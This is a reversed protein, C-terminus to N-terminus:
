SIGLRALAYARGNCSRPVYNVEVCTFQISILFKAERFLVGGPSQDYYTLNLAKVLMKSDSELQVRIMGHNTAATIAALCAQVEACLANHIKELKGVGAV